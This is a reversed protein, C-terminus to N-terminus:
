RSTALRRFAPQSVNRHTKSSDFAWCERDKIILVYEWGVPINIENKGSITCVTSNSSYITDFYLNSNNTFHFYKTTDFKTNLLKLNDYAPQQNQATAVGALVASLGVILALYLIRNKIIKMSEIRETLLTKHTM